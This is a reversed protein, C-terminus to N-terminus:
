DMTEDVMARELEAFHEREARSVRHYRIAWGAYLAVVAGTVTWGIPTLLGPDPAMAALVALFGLQVVLMGATFWAIRVKGEARARSLRVFELTSAATRAWQGRRNWWAFGTAVVWSGWLVILTATGVETLGRERQSWTFWLLALTLLLEVGVVLLTAGVRRRLVAAFEAPSAEIPEPTTWTEALDAWDLQSNM